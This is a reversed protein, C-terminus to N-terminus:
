DTILSGLKSDITLKCIYRKLYQVVSTTINDMDWLLM